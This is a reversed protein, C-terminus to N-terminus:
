MDRFWCCSLMSASNPPGTPPSPQPALSCGPFLASTAWAKSAPIGWWGVVGAVSADRDGRLTFLSVISWEPDSVHFCWGDGGNGSSMVAALLGCSFLAWLGGGGPHCLRRGQRGSCICWDQTKYCKGLLAMGNWSQTCQGWKDDKASLAIGQPHQELLIGWRQGSPGSMEDWALHCFSPLCGHTGTM